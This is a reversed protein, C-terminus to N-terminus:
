PLPTTSDVARTGERDGFVPAFLYHSVGWQRGADFAFAEATAILFLRWNVWWRRAEGPGYTDALIPRIRERNRDLRALWTELTRAYHTGDMHWRDAIVLDEGFEDFLDHAPMTGGTFFTRGMWDDAGEAFTYAFRRHSFVHAFLRGNPTLWGRVRRFALEYNRVHELMEVSVIRDFQRGPELDAVNAVRHEVNHLGRRAAERAIHEGQSRSNSVALVRSGPYHEAVYLALSGWGCGLDMVDMGNALGARESTLALMAEEAAAIDTVGDPWLCSSYKMRPGLFEAFFRAPVEYHQRNAADAHVVIPQRRLDDAVRRVQGAPDGAAEHELGALHRGLRRRVARRILADPAVDLALLPEYWM